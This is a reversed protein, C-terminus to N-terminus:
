RLCVAGFTKSKFVCLGAVVPLVQWYWSGGGVLTVSGQVLGGGMVRDLEEMGLSLREYERVSVEDLTVWDLSEMGAYSAMAKAQVGEVREEVLSNWQQCDSCQGSWKLFAAGCSQCVYQTKTKAM